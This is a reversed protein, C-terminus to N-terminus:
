QDWGKRVLFALIVQIAIAVTQEVEDKTGLLPNVEVLDLGKLLGTKAVEEAICLAERVTLGGIVPTGTSPVLLKDLADIDFSVHLSRDKRPNIAELAKRVVENIGLRDIDSM